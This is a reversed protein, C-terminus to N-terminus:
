IGAYRHEWDEGNMPGYRGNACTIMEQIRVQEPYAANEIRHVIVKTGVEQIETFRGPGEIRYYHGRGVLMRYVPFLAGEQANSGSSGEAM